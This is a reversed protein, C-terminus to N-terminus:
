KKPFRIIKDDNSLTKVKAKKLKNAYDERSGRYLTEEALISNALSSLTVSNKSDVATYAFSRGLINLALTPNCLNDSYNRHNKKTSEILLRISKDADEMKINLKNEYEVRKTNLIDYLVEDNPEDVVVKNFRRRFAKDELIYKEYELTTTAGIIQIRRNSLYSKMINAVDINDSSGKGAGMIMHIEDIFLITNKDKELSSILKDLKAELDGRYTTNAILKVLDLFFIKKDKLINPVKNNNILYALHEVVATKGIGAEGTIIVNGPAILSAELDRIEKERGKINKGIDGTLYYGFGTLNSKEKVPKVDELSNDEDLCLLGKNVNSIDIGNDKFFSKIADSDDNYEYIVNGALNIIDIQNWEYTKTIRQLFSGYGHIFESELQDPYLELTDALDVDLYDAIKKITIGEKKFYDNLKKDNDLIAILTAFSYKDVIDMPKELSHSYYYIKKDELTKYIEISKFVTEKVKKDALSEFELYDSKFM